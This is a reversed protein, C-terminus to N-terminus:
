VASYSMVCSASFLGRGRAGIAVSGLPRSADNRAAVRREIASYGCGCVAGKAPGMTYLQPRAGARKPAGSMTVRWVILAPIPRMRSEIKREGKMSDSVNEFRVPLEM